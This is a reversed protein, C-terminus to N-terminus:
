RILFRALKRSFFLGAFAFSLICVLTFPVLLRTAGLYGITSPAILTLVPLIQACTLVFLLLFCSLLSIVKLKTIRSAKKIEPWYIWLLGIPLGIVMVITFMLAPSDAVTSVDFVVNSTDISFTVKYLMAAFLLGATIILVLALKLFDRFVQKM